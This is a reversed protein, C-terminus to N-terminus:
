YVSEFHTLSLHKNASKSAGSDVLLKVMNVHNYRAAQHLPSLDDQDHMNIKKKVHGTLQAILREMVEM